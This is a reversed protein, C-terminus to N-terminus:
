PIIVITTTLKFKRTSCSDRCHNYKGHCGNSVLGYSGCKLIWRFGQSVFLSPLEPVRSAPGDLAERLM